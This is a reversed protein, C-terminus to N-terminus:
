VTILGKRRLVSLTFVVDGLCVSRKVDFDGIMKEVIDDVSNEGTCYDWITMAMHNSSVLDLDAKEDTLVTHKGAMRTSIGRCKVPSSGLIERTEAWNRLFGMNETTSLSASLGIKPLVLGMGLATSMFNRRSQIMSM